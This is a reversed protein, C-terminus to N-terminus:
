DDDGGGEYEQEDDTPQGGGTSATTQAPAVVPENVTAVVKGDVATAVFELTRTGDTLTVTLDSPSSQTLAWTWGANPTVSDLRLGTGTSAVAVTGAADVAFEQVAVSAVAPVSTVTTPAAADKPLYVDIVQTSPTTLDGTASLNGVSSDSAKDLIGVNASVAAAGALSVAVISVITVLRTRGTFWGSPQSSTM